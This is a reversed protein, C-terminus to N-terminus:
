DNTAARFEQVKRYARGSDIEEAAQAIGSPLDLAIGSVVFAAGANLLVLDRPAGHVGGSLIGLLIEPNLARDGGRLQELTAPAFHYRAPDLQFERVSPPLVERVDNLGTTSLEDMGSGHVVWTRQRPLLAVAAAYKDLIAGSFLGILQHPPRAPNLLPGLLNFITPTGQEALRKRVPAISKFAPHYAPAFLFGIGLRNVIERLKAPPLELRVGLAELVDAGGCKSTIARNGHKVVAAGGAALVFMSTTSVNFLDLQDGGTGCVDILPGPALTPDIEPDVAHELLAHVFGAIEQGTEGKLRLASLFAAKEEDSVTADVLAAVASGIEAASLDSGARLHETHIRLPPVHGHM